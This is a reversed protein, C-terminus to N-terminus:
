PMKPVAPASICNRNEGSCPTSDSRYPRRGNIRSELKPRPRSKMRIASAGFRHHSNTPRTIEPMLAALM